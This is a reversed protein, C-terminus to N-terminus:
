ISLDPIAMTMDFTYFAIEGSDMVAWHVPVEDCQHLSQLQRLSPAMSASKSVVVRHDPKGPMTKKFSKDPLHVDFSLPPARSDKGKVVSLETPGASKIICLKELLADASWAHCPRVLPTIEGQWLHDVPTEQSLEKMREEQKKRYDAWSGAKVNPRRQTWEAFSFVLSEVRNDEGQQKRDREAKAPNKLRYGEVDIKSFEFEIDGPLRSKIPPYLPLVKKGFYDPFDVAYAGWLTQRLRGEIDSQKRSLQESALRESFCDSWAEAYFVRSSCDDRQGTVTQKINRSEDDSNNADKPAIEISNQKTSSVVINSSDKELCIKKAQSSVDTNSMDESDDTRTRKSSSENIKPSELDTEANQITSSDKSSNLSSDEFSTEKEGSCKDSLDNSKDLNVSADSASPTTDVKGPASVSSAEPNTSNNAKDLKKKKREKLSKKDMYKHLNIEREYDTIVSTSEFRLVVYGLRRLHAFVQYEPLSVGSGLLTDYAEQVSLPVDRYCLELTNVEMLFLAEEPYLWNRRKDTFGMHAWFKGPKDVNVLKKDEDWVGHVLSKLKEVRPESLVATREQLFAEMAKNQMWSGDPEFEKQGGKTPVTNDRKLRYKFLEKASLAANDKTLENFSSAMIITNTLNLFNIVPM